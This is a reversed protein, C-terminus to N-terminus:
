PTDWWDGTAPDIWDKQNVLTLYITAENSYECATNCEVVEIQNYLKWCLGLGNHLEESDPLLIGFENLEAPTSWVADPNFLPNLPAGDTMDHAYMVPIEPNVADPSVLNDLGAFGIDIDGNSAICAQICNGGYKGPKRIYWHWENWTIHWDIWQAISATILVDFQWYKKNCNGSLTGEQGETIETFLRGDVAPVWETGDWEWAEVEAGDPSTGFASGAAMVFAAAFLIVLFRKM